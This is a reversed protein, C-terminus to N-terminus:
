SPGQLLRDVVQHQSRLEEMIDSFRECGFCSEHSSVAHSLQMSASNNSEQLLRNVIEHQKRVEAMIHSTGEDLSSEDNFTPNDCVKAKKTKRALSFDELRRKLRRRCARKAKPKSERQPDDDPDYDMAWEWWKENAGKPIEEQMMSPITGKEFNIGM